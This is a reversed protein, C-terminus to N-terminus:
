ETEGLRRHLEAHTSRTMLQINHRRNDLTDGNLHHVVEDAGTDFWVIRHMYTTKGDVSRAAYWRWGTHLASWKHEALREYDEDDVLAVQGRTLPIHKM